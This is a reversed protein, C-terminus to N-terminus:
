RQPEAHQEEFIEATRGLYDRVGSHGLYICPEMSESPALWELDADLDLSESM